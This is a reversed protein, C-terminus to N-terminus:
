IVLPLPLKIKGVGKEARLKRLTAGSYRGTEKLLERWFITSGSVGMHVLLKKRTEYVFTTGVDTLEKFHFLGHGWKMPFKPREFIKGDKDKEEVTLGLRPDYPQLKLSGVHRTKGESM